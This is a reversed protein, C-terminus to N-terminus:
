RAAPLPTSAAQLLCSFRHRLLRRRSRAPSCRSAGGRTRWRFHAHVCCFLVSSSDRLLLLQLGRAPSLFFCDPVPNRLNSPLLPRILLTSCLTSVSRVICSSEDPGCGVWASLWLRGQRLPSCEWRVSAAGEVGPGGLAQSSSMARARRGLVRASHTHQGGRGIADEFLQALRILEGGRRGQARM